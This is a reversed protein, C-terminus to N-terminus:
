WCSPQKRTSNTTFPCGNFTSLSGTALFYTFPIDGNTPARKVSFRSLQLQLIQDFLKALHVESRVGPMWQLDNPCARRLSSRHLLADSGLNGGEM